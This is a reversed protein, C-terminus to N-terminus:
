KSRRVAKTTKAKRKAIRRPPSSDKVEETATKELLRPKKTPASIDENSDEDQISRKRNKRPPRGESSPQPLDNEKEPLCLPL